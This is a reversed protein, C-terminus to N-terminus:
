DARPDTPLGAARAEDRCEQGAVAEGGPKGETVGRKLQAHEEAGQDTAEQDRSLTHRECECEVREREKGGDMSGM